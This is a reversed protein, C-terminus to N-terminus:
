LYSLIFTIFNTAGVGFEILNPSTIISTKKEISFLVM